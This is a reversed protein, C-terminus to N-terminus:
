EEIGPAKYKGTKPDNKTNVKPEEKTDTKFSAGYKEDGIYAIKERTSVPTEGYKGAGIYPITSSKSATNTSASSSSTSTTEAKTDEPKATGASQKAKIESEWTDFMELVKDKTQYSVSPLKGGGASNWAGEAQKFGKLFADKMKEFMADDDGALTKAFTFIREATADVSWYDDYKESSAEAAKFANMVTENGGFLPKYGGKNVQANIQAQVMNRVADNKMQRASLSARSRFEDTETRRNESRNTNQTYAPKYTADTKDVKDVNDAVTTTSKKQSEQAAPKPATNYSARGVDYPKQVNM